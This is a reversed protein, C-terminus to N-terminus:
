LRHSTAILVNCGVVDHQCDRAVIRFRVVVVFEYHLQYWNGVEVVWSIATPIIKFALSGSKQIDFDQTKMKWYTLINMGGEFLM